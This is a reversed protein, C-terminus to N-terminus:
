NTHHAASTDAYNFDFIDRDLHQDLTRIHPPADVRSCEGVSLRLRLAPMSHALMEARPKLRVRIRGPEIVTEAFEISRRVRFWGVAEAATAFWANEERLRALIREYVRDWNREPFLSRDHWNVTLAGGYRKVEALLDAIAADAATESLRLYKPYLMATDMAILPLELLRQTGPFKFVQATGARFGVTQNFGFTSDYTFGAAELTTPTQQDFFLWHMRVGRENAQLGRGVEAAEAAAADSDNWADIGHLAVEGGTAEIEDLQKALHSAGYASARKDPALGTRGLAKGPDGARPLVFYTAKSGEIRRYRESFRLWPDPLLGAQVLPLGLAARYNKMLDRASGRGSFMALASDFLSRKIFGLATHDFRHLRLSPHDVDHTLCTILDHGWPVPPVEVVPTGTACICERIMAILAELRPTRAQEPPVGESLCRSLELFPNSGIRIVTRGLTEVRRAFALKGDEFHILASGAGEISAMGASLSVKGQKWLISRGEASALRIGHARDWPTEWASCLLTRGGPRQPQVGLTDLAVISAGAAPAPQWPTKFMQFFERVAALEEASATVEIM